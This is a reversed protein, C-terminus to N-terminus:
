HFMVEEDSVKWTVAVDSFKWSWHMHSTALMGLFQFDIWTNGLVIALCCLYRKVNLNFTLFFGKFGLEKFITHV